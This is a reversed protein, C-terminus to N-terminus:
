HKGTYESQQAVMAVIWNWFMGDGWFSFRYKNATLGEGGGM